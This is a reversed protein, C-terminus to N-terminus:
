RVGLRLSLVVNVVCMVDYIVDVSHLRLTCDYCYLFLQLATYEEMHPLRCMLLGRVKPTFVTSFQFGM